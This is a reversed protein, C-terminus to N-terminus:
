NIAYGSISEHNNFNISSITSRMDPKEGLNIKLLTMSIEQETYMKIEHNGPYLLELRKQVNIIEVSSIGQESKDMDFGNMLKMTFLHDEIRLELNMWSQEANSECQSFSNEIFPLLLLPPITKNAFNGKMDIEMEMNEGFRIREMFMYEKMMRLEKELPVKADDCEYLLYSLLDSFKLLLEQANPSKSKAYTYIHDLSSFLFDPRIQAKMLQLDTILKEKEVREKEKQKLYWRKVLKIATAAAIIKPAALLVSNISTWWLTSNTAPPNYHFVLDIYPFLQSHIFYGAALLFIILLVTGAALSLYKEKVLYRPLLFYIFVYCSLVHVLILLFTKLFLIGSLNGFDIKQLGVQVYYYYTAAFYIWWLIWFIAHRRIRIGPKDSFIFDHWSM